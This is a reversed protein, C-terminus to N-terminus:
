STKKRLFRFTMRSLDTIRVLSCKKLRVLAQHKLLRSKKIPIFPKSIRITLPQWYITLCVTKPRHDPWICGFAEPCILFNNWPKIKIESSTLSLTHSRYWLKAWTRDTTKHWCRIISRKSYQMERKQQCTSLYYKKKVKQSLVLIVLHTKGEEAQKEPQQWPLIKIALM